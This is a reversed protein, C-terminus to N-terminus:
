QDALIFIIKKKLYFNHTTLWCEFLGGVLKNIEKKVKIIIWFNLYVCEILNFNFKFWIQMFTIFKACIYDMYSIINHMNNKILFYYIYIFRSTFRFSRWAFQTTIVSTFLFIKFINNNFSHGLVIYFYMEVLAM